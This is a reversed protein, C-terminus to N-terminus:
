GHLAFCTWVASSSLAAHDSTVSYIDNRSALLFKRSFNTVAIGPNRDDMRSLPARIASFFLFCVFCHCSFKDSEHGGASEREATQGIKLSLIGTSGLVFMSRSRIMVHLIRKLM